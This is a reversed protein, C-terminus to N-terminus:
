KPQEKMLKPVITEMFYGMSYKHTGNITVITITEKTVIVSKVTPRNLILQITEM